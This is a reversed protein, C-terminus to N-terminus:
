KTITNTVNLWFHKYIQKCDINHSIHDNKLPQM